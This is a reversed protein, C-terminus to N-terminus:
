AYIGGFLNERHYTLYRMTNEPSSRLSSAPNVGLLVLEDVTIAASRILKGKKDFSVLGRDFLKDITPQLLLGNFPDLRESNSSLSWPKIHSALLLAPRSYGTVACGGWLRFLGDRFVGQGIRSTRLANRETEKLGAFEGDFDVEYVGHPERAELENSLTFIFQSPEDSRL